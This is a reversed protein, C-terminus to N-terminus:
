CNIFGTTRGRPMSQWIGLTIAVEANHYVVGLRSERGSIPRAYAWASPNALAYESWVIGAVSTGVACYRLLRIWDLSWTSGNKFKIAMETENVSARLAEPFAEFIRRKGSHPNVAQWIAKRAQSYLPLCHVYNGVRRQAAIMAFHLALEDKGARRNRYRWPANAAMASTSSMARRYPRAQWGNHPLPVNPMLTLKKLLERIKNVTAM